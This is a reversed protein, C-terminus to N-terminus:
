IHIDIFKTSWKRDVKKYYLGYKVYMDDIEEIKAFGPIWYNYYGCWEKLFTMGNM